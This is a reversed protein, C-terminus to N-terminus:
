SAQPKATTNKGQPGKGHRGHGRGHRGLEESTLSGDANKDLRELMLAAAKHVEAREIKGDANQDLQALKGGRHGRRKGAQEQKGKAPQTGLEAATLAGDKNADSLAFWREPMRSEEKTLRGDKNTDKKEFMRAVREARRAEHSQEIEAATAVGDKNGDVESLWGEKSQTLEALTVKGDKNADLQNFREAAGNGAKDCNPGALATGALALGSGLILATLCYKKM